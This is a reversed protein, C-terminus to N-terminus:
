CGEANSLPQRPGGTVLPDCEEDKVNRLPVDAGGSASSMVQARM